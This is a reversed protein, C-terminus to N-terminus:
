RARFRKEVSLRTELDLDASHFEAEIGRAQLAGLLQRGTAKTHVFALFRDENHQNILRMATNIMGEQIDGYRLGITPHPLYHMEHPVPRWSSKIVVSEKGNLRTLWGGLQDVNPMTASLVVVRANPNQFTFRMIGSELRDGREPMTLLHVEDCVLAGVDLLWANREQLMRRTRSDLMESTLLIVEAKALEEVRKETLQYDGTVISINRGKFVGRTWDDYKEQTVAKLPSLFIGKKGRSLAEAIVLEAVVTKGASTPAAVVVNTDGIVHPLVLSQLPNFTEFPFALLPFESTPTWQEPESEPPAFPLYSEVPAPEDPQQPPLVAVPAPRRWSGDKCEKWRVCGRFKQGTSRNTRELTAAGCKKCRFWRESDALANCEDWREAMRTALSELTGTRHVRTTKGIGMDSVRDVLTFRIADEGSGRSVDEGKQLGSYCNIAWDEGLDWRYVIENGPADEAVEFGSPLAQEIEIRTFCTYTSM